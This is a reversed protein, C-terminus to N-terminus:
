GSARAAAGAAREDEKGHLQMLMEGFGCLRAAVSRMVAVMVRQYTQRTIIAKEEGTRTGVAALAWKGMSRCAQPGLSGFTTMGFPLFETETQAFLAAYKEVKAEEARHAAKAPQEGDGRFTMAEPFPHTVTGDIAVPTGGPGMM